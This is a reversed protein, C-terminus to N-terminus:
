THINEYHRLASTFHMNAPGGDAGVTDAVPLVINEDKLRVIPWGVVDSV